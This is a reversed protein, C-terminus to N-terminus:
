RMGAAFGAAFGGASPVSTAMFGEFRQVAFAVDKADVTGDGNVDLLKMQKQAFKEV